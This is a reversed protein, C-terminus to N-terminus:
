NSGHVLKGSHQWKGTDTDQHIKGTMRLHDSHIPSLWYYNGDSLWKM